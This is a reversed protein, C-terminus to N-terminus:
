YVKQFRVKYFYYRLIDLENYDYDSALRLAGNASLGVMHNGAAELENTSLSPHKGYPDRVSQCWPYLTSGWREQFSKTKGNTWSSYPSLAIEDGYMMIKGSTNQTAKKIQLHNDIEKEPIGVEWDYGHYIQNSSTNIVIFGQSAYQTSWRIKWYGYTRFMITMAENYNADGTGTIEGIGWIYHELPLTNIIWIRDGDAVPSDYFHAKIKGRYRDFNSNPRNLDFIISSNNGDAAEFYINSGANTEAISDYVKLNGNSLYQIKTHTNAKIIGLSKGSEDKIRYNKNATIRIYTEDRLDSKTYSYLGISINPGLPGSKLTAEGLGGNKQSRLYRSHGDKWKNKGYKKGKEYKKKNYKEYKSYRSYKKYPIVYKKYKSYKKYDDYFTAYSPYSQPNKKYLKYKKYNEKAATKKASNEFGYKEKYKKYKKYKSYKDKKQYKLYLEYKQYADYDPDTVATATPIQPFLFVAFLIIKIITKFPM